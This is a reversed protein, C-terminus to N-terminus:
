ALARCLGDLVLVATRQRDREEAMREPAVEVAIQPPDCAASALATVLRATFAEPEDAAGLTVMPIASTTAGYDKSKVHLVLGADRPAEETPELLAISAEARTAIALNVLRGAVGAAGEDHVRVVIRMRGLVEAARAPAVRLAVPARMDKGGWVHRLHEIAGVTDPGVIGDASQGSNAQFEQVARETYAGFIGDPEGCAFGLANLAGQLERVDRGHFLPYRLYLMRDGLTFTADVLVNWTEESVTGREAVGSAEQFSRVAAETAGLFVGDVGTPGLDYGLTLLRRQVDEVAAGRDGHRIPRM